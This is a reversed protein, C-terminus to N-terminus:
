ASRGLGFGEPRLMLAACVLERSMQKGLDAESGTLIAERCRPCMCGQTNAPGVVFVSLSLFGCLLCGSGTVEAGV